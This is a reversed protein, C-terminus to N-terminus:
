VRFCGLNSTFNLSWVSTGDLHMAWGDSPPCGSTRNKPIIIVSAPIKEQRVTVARTELGPSSNLCRPLSCRALLSCAICLTAAHRLGCPCPLHAHTGRPTPAVASPVAWGREGVAQRAAVAGAEPCPFCRRFPRRPVVRRCAKWALSWPRRAWM